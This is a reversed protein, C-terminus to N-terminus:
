EELNLMVVQKLLVLQKRKMSPSTIKPCHLPAAMTASLPERIVLTARNDHAKKSDDGIVPGKFCMGCIACQGKDIFRIRSHM